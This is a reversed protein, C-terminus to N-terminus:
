FFRSVLGEDQLLDAEEETFTEKTFTEKPFLRWFPELEAHWDPYAFRRKLLLVVSEPSTAANDGMPVSLNSPLSVLVDGAPVDRAAITGRLGGAGPVSGIRVNSVGGSAVVWDVIAREPAIRRPWFAAARAALATLALLLLLSPRM